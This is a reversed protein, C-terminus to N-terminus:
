CFLLGTRWWSCLWWPWLLSTALHLGLYDRSRSEHEGGAKTFLMSYQPSSVSLSVPVSELLPLGIVVLAGIGAATVVLAVATGIVATAFVVIAVASM